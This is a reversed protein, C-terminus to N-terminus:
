VQNISSSGNFFLPFMMLLPCSVLYWAVQVWKHLPLNWSDETTRLSHAVKLHRHSVVGDVVSSLLPLAVQATESVWVLAESTDLDAARESIFSTNEWAIVIVFTVACTLASCLSLPHAAAM